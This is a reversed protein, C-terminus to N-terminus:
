RWPGRGRQGAQREHAYSWTAAPLGRQSWPAPRSDTRRHMHGASSCRVWCQGIPVSKGANSNSCGCLLDIPTPASIPRMLMLKLWASFYAGLITLTHLDHGTPEAVRRPKAEGEKFSRRRTQEPRRCSDRLQAWEVPPHPDRPNSRFAGIPARRLKDTIRRLDLALNNSKTRM